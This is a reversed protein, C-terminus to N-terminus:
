GAKVHAANAFGNKPVRQTGERKCHVRLTCWKTDSKMAGKDKHCYAKPWAAMEKNIEPAVQVEMTKIAGRGQNRSRKEKM